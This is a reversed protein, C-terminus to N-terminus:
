VRERENSRGGATRGDGAVAAASGGLWGLRSSRECGVRGGSRSLVNHVVALRDAVPPDVSLHSLMCGCAVCVHVVGGCLPADHKVCAFPRANCEVTRYTSRWTHVGLAQDEGEGPPCRVRRRRHQTHTVWGVYM